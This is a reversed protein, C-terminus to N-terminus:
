HVPQDPDLVGAWSSQEHASQAAKDAAAKKGMKEPKPESAEPRTPISAGLTDILQGLQKMAGVNGKAAAEFVMQIRAGELRARAENRERLERFYHKQLTAKTIGLSAAIRRDPWGVGLLLMVKNRNRQTPVHPPRGRKGWNEPIPDGFLDFNEAM